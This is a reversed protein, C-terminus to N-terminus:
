TQKRPSKVQGAPGSIGTSCRAHDTLGKNFVLQIQENLRRTNLWQHGDEEEVCDSEVNPSTLLAHIDTVRLRTYAPPCNEPAYELCSHHNGPLPLLSTSLSSTINAEGQHSEPVQQGPITVGLMAGYLYMWDGDASPHGWQPELTLGEATSGGMLATCWAKHHAEGSRLASLSTNNIRM